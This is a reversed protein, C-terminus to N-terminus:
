NKKLINDPKFFKQFNANYNIYFSVINHLIDNPIYMYM